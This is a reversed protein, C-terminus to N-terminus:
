NVEIRLEQLLLNLMNLPLDITIKDGVRVTILRDRMELIAQIRAMNSEVNRVDIQSAQKKPVHDKGWRRLTAETIGTKSSLLKFKIGTEDKYDMVREIMDPDFKRKGLKKFSAIDSVLQALKTDKSKVNDFM